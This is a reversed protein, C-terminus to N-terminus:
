WQKPPKTWTGDVVVTTLSVRANDHILQAIREEQIRVCGHSAAVQPVSPFYHLGIGRARVFFTVYTARADSNLRRAFGEVTFTGKPTCLTGSRRSTSADDCNLGRLGAGPSTHFPGTEQSEADPGAWSLTMTHDPDNLSVHVQEIYTQPFSRAHPATPALAARPRGIAKAVVGKKRAARPEAADLAELKKAKAIAEASVVGKKPARRKAATTKVSHKRTGRTKKATPVKRSGKTPAASRKKASSKKTM